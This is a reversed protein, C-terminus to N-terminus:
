RSQPAPGIVVRFGLGAISMTSMQSERSASRCASEPDFASGGRIAFNDENVRRLPDIAPEAGLFPVFDDLVWEAVNGHMDFLGWRNPLKLAVPHLTGGSNNKCWGMSDITGTGAYPGISGARCAFEWEAETPLRYQRHVSDNESMAKCFAIADDRTVHDVPANPDENHVGKPLTRM